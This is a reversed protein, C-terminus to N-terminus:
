GLEVDSARLSGHKRDVRSTAIRTGLCSLWGRSTSPSRRAEDKTLMKPQLAETPNERSYLYALAQGNADRFDAAPCKTPMGPRRSAPSADAM